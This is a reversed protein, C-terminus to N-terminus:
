NNIDDFKQVEDGWVDWAPRSQRSFMELKTMGACLKEVLEYFEAPKRSHERRAAHLITPENTLTKMTAFAKVQGKTALLCHETCNRLWHGTGIHPKGAKTIKEWTLITKIEFGWHQVCQVAEGVHNNTFWLWLVCGSRSSLEPLPLALIEELKMPKYTIRNRHTEDQSRLSYFWPPDCVICQYSKEPLPIELADLRGELKALRLLLRQKESECFGRLSQLKTLAAQYNGLYHLTEHRPKGGVRISKVIEYYNHGDIRRKALFPM